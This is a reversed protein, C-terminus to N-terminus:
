KKSQRQPVGGTDANPNSDARSPPRQQPRVQTAPSPQPDTRPQSPPRVQTAPSPQPDTRPQSPPRAKAQDRPKASAKPAATRDAAAPSPNAAPQKRASTQTEKRGTTEPAKGFLRPLIEKAPGALAVKGKDLAVLDKCIALLIPSHTVIIVTREHGIDRLTRRLEQEAQRDLSSSPEDLLLVSPDGVLARAIAIRQRQGGSLWSGAEGIETAYGDPM